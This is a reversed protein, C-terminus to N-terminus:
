ATRLVVQLECGSAAGGEICLRGGMREVLKQALALGIQIGQGPRHQPEPRDLPVFTRRLQEITMRHGLDGIWITVRDGARRVGIQLVGDPRGCRLASALLNVLAQKLRAPEAQATAELGGEPRLGIRSTAAQSGVQALSDRILPELAVATLAIQVRGTDIRSLEDMDDILRLMQWGAAQILDVREKQAPSLSESRDLALIQAFGLISNLPTRLAHGFHSVLEADCAQSADGDEAGPDSRGAAGSSM